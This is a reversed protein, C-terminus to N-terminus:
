EFLSDLQINDNEQLGTEQLEEEEELYEVTWLWYGGNVQEEIKVVKLNNQLVLNDLNEDWARCRFEYLCQYQEDDTRLRYIREQEPESPAINNIKDLM